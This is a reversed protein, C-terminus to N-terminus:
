ADEARAKQVNLDCHFVQDGLPVLTYGPICNVANVWAVEPAKALRSPSLCASNWRALLLIM